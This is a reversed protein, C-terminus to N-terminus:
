FRAPDTGIGTLAGPLIKQTNQTYDIFPISVLTIPQSFILGTVSPLLVYLSGWGVGMM